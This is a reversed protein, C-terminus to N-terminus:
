KGKIITRSSRTMIGIIKWLRQKNIMANGIMKHNNGVLDIQTRHTKFLANNKIQM